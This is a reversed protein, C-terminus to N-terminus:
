DATINGAREALKLYKYYATHGNYLSIIFGEKGGLIGRKFLYSKLFAMWGHLVAKGLSSPRPPGQEAFLTTYHQMKALFDSIRRYPTHLLPAALPVKQLGNTLVKEHVADESFRTRGRHYLRVVRDPHWGGCWRIHKGNFYNQRLISYACSPSLPTRLIEEALEPTVVEDSDISLIWDHAALSSALNHLPGFGLFPSHRVSVNPYQRAVELTADTSGTDLLVVESFPRLSDLTKGVTEQGNKTLLTVSIM